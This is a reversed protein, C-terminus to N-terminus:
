DIVTVKITNSEVIGKGLEPPLDREVQLSYEGPTLREYLSRIEIADQCTQQPKLTILVNRTSAHGSKVEEKMQQLNETVPVRDTNHMLTTRYDTAPNTLAVHLVRRSTNKMTLIVSVPADAKWTATGTKKKANQPSIELLFPSNHRASSIFRITRIIALIYNKDADLELISYREGNIEVPQPYKIVVAADWPAGQDKSPWVLCASQGDVKMPRTTPNEGFPRVVHEALGKCIQKPEDSEEGMLLLQFFGRGATPLPREVGFYPRDDYLPDRKWERPFRFTVQYTDDVYTQWPEATSARARGLLPTAVCFLCVLAVVLRTMGHRWLAIPYLPAIMGETKISLSHRLTVPSLGGDRVVDATDLSNRARWNRVLSKGGM